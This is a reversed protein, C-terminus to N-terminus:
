VVNIYNNACRKMLNYLMPPCNPPMFLREGKLVAQLADKNSYEAFPAKIDSIVQSNGTWIDHSGM